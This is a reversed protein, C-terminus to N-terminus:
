NMMRSNLTVNRVNRIAGIKKKFVKNGGAQAESSIDYLFNLSSRDDQSVATKYRCVTFPISTPTDAMAVPLPASNLFHVIASIFSWM